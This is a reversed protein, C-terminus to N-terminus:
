ILSWSFCTTIFSSSISPSLSIARVLSQNLQVWRATKDFRDQFGCFYGYTGINATEKFVLRIEVNMNGNEFSRRVQRARRFQLCEWHFLNEMPPTM